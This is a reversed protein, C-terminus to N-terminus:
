SSVTGDVAVTYDITANECASEDTASPSMSIVLSEGSYSDGPALNQGVASGELTLGFWSANCGEPVASINATVSSITESSVNSSPNTIQLTVTDSTAGTGSSDTGPSILTGGDTGNVTFTAYTATQASGNFVGGAGFFAYAAGSSALVFLVALGATAIKKRHPLNRLQRLSERM